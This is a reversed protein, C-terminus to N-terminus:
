RASVHGTGIGVSDKILNQGINGRALSALEDIVSAHRFKEDLTRGHESMSGRSQKRSLFSTIGNKEFGRNLLAKTTAIIRVINGIISILGPLRDEQKVAKDLDGLKRNFGNREIGDKEL